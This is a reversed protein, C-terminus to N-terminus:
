LDIVRVQWSVNGRFRNITPVYLMSREPDKQVDVIRNGLSFGIGQLNAYTGRITLHLHESGKGVTRSDVIRASNDHFVPQLNGPGFPELLKFFSMNEDTMLQEVSCEVDFRRKKTQPRQQWCERAVVAFAAEFGSMNEKSVSLGAAMEHGGFRDIWKSCRSIMALINMGEISRASGVYIELGNAMNKEAFVMAPVGYMEVLRSAVIGAVGQHLEGKAIVCRNEEVQSSSIANLATELNDASIRRRQENLETLKHALVKARKRNKEILINVVLDSEGLRGAANMKPGILYGIDESTIDGGGIDCSALLEQLGPFPTSALAELGARVLIRNTATLDVVDAITGLAVLALYNKLNVQGPSTGSDRRTAHEARIGAALYFAVGVGALQEKHFGCSPQSPNLILCNPIGDEPLNHHDTVIVAGGMRKIKEIQTANSIGCDVTILLFNDALISGKRAMFWDINLGYGETMRNPIHWVVEVGFESFFNVLLATGTTGDVDYDGWIVIQKSSTMYQLVLRVAEALNKMAGPQPLDSLHPFLFKRVTEEGEVGRERLLEKFMPPIQICQRASNDGKQPEM